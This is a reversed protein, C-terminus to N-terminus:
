EPLANEDTEITEAIKERAAATEAEGDEDPPVHTAAAGMVQDAIITRSIRETKDPKRYLSLTVPGMVVIQDGKSFRLIRERSAASFALVDVWETLRDRDAEATKPAHMNVGIRTRVLPPREARAISKPEVAVRGRYVSECNRPKGGPTQAQESM